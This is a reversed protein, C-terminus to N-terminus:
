DEEIMEKLTAVTATGIAIKDNTSLDKRGMAEKNLEMIRESSTEFAIEEIYWKVNKEM